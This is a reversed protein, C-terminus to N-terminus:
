IDRAAPPDHSVPERRATRAISAGASLCNIPWYVTGQHHRHVWDLAQEGSYPAHAWANLTRAVGPMSIYEAIFPADEPLPARLKVLEGCLDM